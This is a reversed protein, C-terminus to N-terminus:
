CTMEEWKQPQSLLSNANKRGSHIEGDTQLPSREQWQSQKWRLWCDRSRHHVTSVAFVLQVLIEALTLTVHLWVCRNAHQYCNDSQGNKQTSSNMGHQSGMHFCIHVCSLLTASVCFSFVATNLATTEQHPQQFGVSATIEDATHPVFM